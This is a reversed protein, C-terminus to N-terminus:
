LGHPAVVVRVDLAESVEALDLEVAAPNNIRHEPDYVFCVLTRCNPHGRYHAKDITLEAVVEKQGLGKRTMKTEVFVREPKLLIDGRTQVGGHSPNWEERRVDSFHLRLVSRFLDQLDYEDRLEFAPRSAHRNRLEAALLPFRRALDAVLDAASSPSRSLAGVAGLVAEKLAIAYAHAQAVGSFEPKSLAAQALFKRHLTESDLASLQLGVQDDILRFCIMMAADFASQPNAPDVPMLDAVQLKKATLMALGRNWISSLSLQKIHRSVTQRLWHIATPDSDAVFEAGIVLGLLELPRFLFSNRDAPVPDRSKLREMGELWAAHQDTTLAAATGMRYGVTALIPAENWRQRPVLDPDFQDLRLDLTISTREVWDAFGADPAEPHWAQTISQRLEEFQAAFNGAVPSSIVSVV